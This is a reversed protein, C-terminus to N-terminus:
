KEKAAAAADGITLKLFCGGAFLKNLKLETKLFDRTKIDGM